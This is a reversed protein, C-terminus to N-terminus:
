EETGGFLVVRPRKPISRLTTVLEWDMAHGGSYKASARKMANTLSQSAVIAVYEGYPVHTRLFYLKM